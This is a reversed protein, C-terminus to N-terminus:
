YDKSAKVQGFNMPCAGNAEIRGQVPFTNLYIVKNLVAVKIGESRLITAKGRKERM